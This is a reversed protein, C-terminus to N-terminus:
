NCWKHSQLTTHREFLIYIFRKVIDIYNVSDAQPCILTAQAKDYEKCLMEKM